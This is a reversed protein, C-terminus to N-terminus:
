SEGLWWMVPGVITGYFGPAFVAHRWSVHELAGAGDVLAMAASMAGWMMLLAASVLLGSEMGAQWSLRFVMISAAVMGAVLYFALEGSRASVVVQSPAVEVKASGGSADAFLAESIGIYVCWIVILVLGRITIWMLGRGVCAMDTALDWRERQARWVLESPMMARGCEPCVTRLSVRPDVRGGLECDCHPCHPHRKRM